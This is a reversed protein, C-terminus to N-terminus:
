YCSPFLVLLFYINLVVDIHTYPRKEDCSVFQFGVPCQNSIFFLCINNFHKDRPMFHGLRCKVELHLIQYVSHFSCYFNSLDSIM